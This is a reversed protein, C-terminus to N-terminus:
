EFNLNFDPEDLITSDEGQISHLDLDNEKQRSGYLFLVCVLLTLVITGIVLVLRRIWRKGKKQAEPEPGSEAAPAAPAPAPLENESEDLLYGMPVNYLKSLSQLNETSPRSLGTEWKTVAQRSVDLEESVEAQSLGAKKRLRALKQDLTM